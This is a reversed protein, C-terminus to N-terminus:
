NEQRSPNPSISPGNDEGFSFGAWARFAPDRSGENTLAGSQCCLPAGSTGRSDEGLTADRLRAYHEREEPDDAEQSRSHTGTRRGCLHCVGSPVGGRIFV